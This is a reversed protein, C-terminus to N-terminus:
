SSQGRYIVHYYFLCCIFILQLIWLMWTYLAPFAGGCGKKRVYSGQHKSYIKQPDESTSIQWEKAKYYPDSCYSIQSPMVLVSNEETKKISGTAWPKDLPFLYFFLPLHRDATKENRKGKLANVAPQFCFFFINGRTNRQGSWKSILIFRSQETEGSKPRETEEMFFSTLTNLASLQTVYLIYDYIVPFSSNKSGALVIMIICKQLPRYIHYNLSSNTKTGKNM